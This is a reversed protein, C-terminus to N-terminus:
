CAQQVTSRELRPSLGQEEKIWTFLGEGLCGVRKILGSWQNEPLGKAWLEVPNSGTTEACFM